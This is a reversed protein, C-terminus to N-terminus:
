RKVTRMLVAGGLEFAKTFPCIVDCSGMMAELVASSLRDSRSETNEWM